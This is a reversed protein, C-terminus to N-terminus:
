LCWPPPLSLAQLLVPGAAPAPVPLPVSLFASLRPAVSLLSEPNQLVVPVSPLGSDPLAVPGSDPSLGSVALMQLLYNLPIVWPFIKWHATQGPTSSFVYNYISHLRLDSSM